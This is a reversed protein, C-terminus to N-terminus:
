CAGMRSSDSRRRIEMIAFKRLGPRYATGARNRIAATAAAADVLEAARGSKVPVTEALPPAGSGTGAVTKMAVAAGLVPELV